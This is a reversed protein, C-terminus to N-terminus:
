SFDTRRQRKKNGAWVKELLGDRDRFRIGEGNRGWKEGM